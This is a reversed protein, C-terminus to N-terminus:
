TVTILFRRPLSLYCRHRLWWFRCPPRVLTSLCRFYICHGWDLRLYGSNVDVGCYWLRFAAQQGGPVTCEGAGDGRRLKTGPLSLAVTYARCWNQNRYQNYIGSRIRAMDEARLSHFKATNKRTECKLEIIVISGDNQQVVLDAPNKPSNVYVLVERRVQLSYPKELLHTIEVQAWGEWGGDKDRIYEIKEKVAPSSGWELIARLIRQDPDPVPATQTYPLPYRGNSTPPDARFQYM